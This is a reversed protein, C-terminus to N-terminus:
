EESRASGFQHGQGFEFWCSRAAVQNQTLKCIRYSNTKVTTNQCKLTYTYSFTYSDVKFVLTKLSRRLAKRGSLWPTLHGRWSTLPDRWFPLPGTKTGTFASLLLAMGM